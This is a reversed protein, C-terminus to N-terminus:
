PTGPVEAVAGPIRVPTCSARGTELELGVKGLLYLNHERALVKTLLDAPNEKGPYKELRFHKMRVRQQVWLDSVALHRVKGLGQRKVMGIAATADSKITIQTSFGFDALISQLGLGEAAAKVVAALESEGSSLCLIPVTKSWTKVFQGSWTAIGGITTQRTRLCGAHNADTFVTLDRDLEKWLFKVVLRSAGLIYRAARKLATWDAVSPHSVRRLLEKATFQVDPRDMAFYNLRAAISLYQSAQEESLAEDKEDEDAYEKMGERTATRRRATLEAATVESNEATGPTAVAKAGTLGLAEAVLEGHGQDAELQIGWPMKTVVRGLVRVEKCQGEKEGLTQSKMEYVDKLTKEVHEQGAARAVVVFDDGHVLIYIGLKAHYFHCPSATGQVFGGAQLVATYHLAWQEAADLTGYMTRDLKGCLGPEGARPDEAPLQIYVDRVSQAYFHARSVDWVKFVWPDAVKSPDESATIAILVRLSELPPTASFIAETGKRRVETCVLRARVHPRADDGKNTDIWKLKLPRKGKSMAESVTAYHYVHQDWLYRLETLRAARVLDLDLPGGKVDDEAGESTLSNVEKLSCKYDVDELIELNFMPPEYGSEIGAEELANVGERLDSIDQRLQRSLGRVITRCLAPPYVQAAKAKGDLLTVHDHDKTCKMAELEDAVCPANTLWRTPKMVPGETGDGRPATMGFRCMHSVATYVDHRLIFDVVCKEQWSSAAFPHEHLFYRGAKVQMDYLEFTFQLHMRAKELNEEIKEKTMNRTFMARLNSFWTCMPSGILMTPKTTEILVKARRRCAPDDFDWPRGQEDKTTLDLSWGPGLGRRAGVPAIRPPSYVEGIGAGAPNGTQIFMMDTADLTM